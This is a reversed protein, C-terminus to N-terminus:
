AAFSRTLENGIFACGIYYAAGSEDRVCNIVRLRTAWKLPGVELKIQFREGDALPEPARFRVGLLSLNRLEVARAPGGADPRLMAKALLTQRPSKRRDPFEITPAPAPAPAPASIAAPAIDTAFGAPMSARPMADFSRGSQAAPAFDPAPAFEPDSEPAQFAEPEPMPDSAAPKSFPFDDPFLAM